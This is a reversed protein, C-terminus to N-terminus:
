FSTIRHGDYKPYGRSNGHVVLWLLLLSVFFAVDCLLPSSFHNTYPSM